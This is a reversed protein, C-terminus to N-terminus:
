GKFPKRIVEKEELPYNYIFDSQECFLLCIFINGLVWDRQYLKIAEM